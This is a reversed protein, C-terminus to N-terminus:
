LCCLGHVPQSLANIDASFAESHTATTTLMHLWQAECRPLVWVHLCRLVHPNIRRCVRVFNLSLHCSIRFSANFFAVSICYPSIRVHFFAERQKRTQGKSLFAQDGVSVKGMAMPLDAM